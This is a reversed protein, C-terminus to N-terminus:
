DPKGKDDPFFHFNKAAGFHSWLLGGPPSLPPM